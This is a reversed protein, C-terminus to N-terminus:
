KTSFRKFFGEEELKRVFRSDVFDAPNKGKLSPQRESLFELVFKIGEISPNLNQNLLQGVTQQSQLLAPDDKPVRMFKAVVPITLEPRTKYLYIAESTGRLINIVVEPNSDIYKRTSVVSIVPFPFDLSALDFIERYGMKTATTSTPPTLIGAQFKGQLLGALVEPSGGASMVGVERNAAWGLNRLFALAAFYSNGGIAGTALTKGKLDGIQKIQPTVHVAFTLRNFVTGLIAVEAGQAAASVAAAGGVQSVDISGGLMAQIPRAGGVYVIESELGYKEFLKLDHAIWFPPNAYALASFALRIKRAQAADTPLPLLFVGAAFVAAVFQRIRGRM